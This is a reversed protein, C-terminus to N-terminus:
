KSNLQQLRKCEPLDAASKYLCIGANFADVFDPDLPAKAQPYSNYVNTVQQTKQDTEANKQQNQGVTNVAAAGANSQAANVTAQTKPITAANKANQHNNWWIWGILIVVIIGGAILFIAWKAVWAYFSDLM